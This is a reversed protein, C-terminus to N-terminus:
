HIISVCMMGTDRVTELNDRLKFFIVKSHPAEQVCEKETIDLFIVM